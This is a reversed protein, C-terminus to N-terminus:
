LDIFSIIVSSFKNSKGKVPIFNVLLETKEKQRGIFSYKKNLVKKGSFANNIDTHFKEVVNSPIFQLIIKKRIISRGSIKKLINKVENNFSNIEFNSNILLYGQSTINLIAQLNKESEVLLQEKRELDENIIKLEMYATHLEENTSQLEENSTELEENSSQLEENTAQLEENLSQLEENSTELEELYTQLHERTANLELELEKIRPNISSGSEEYSYIKEEEPNLSEFVILYFENNADTYILPKVIIRVYHHKGFLSFKKIKGKITTRDKVSKTLAAHLDLALEKNILKLINANMSGENLGLYLRVDGFIEQVDMNDNVVVYPYEFTNYLTEKVIESLSNRTKERNSIVVSKVERITKVNAFRLASLSQGAKRKFIKSKPDISSFLDAFQGVTESKGLFLIGDPNLAYHFIPIVHKQLQLSFYILLNRCSIMDLKLFPPNVAVDHKSFLVMLRISKSIEFNDDDIKRFYKKVIGAPVDELASSPYIGKRAITLAKEDIDTAFIQINFSTIKEKLIESLLIAFSYPEEGTACGPVWIRINDKTNKQDTIKTLIKNIEKFPDGDRFFRTVGILIMQFLNDLEAPKEQILKLYDDISSIKLINLRKELRRFITSQKYQSFDTQTRKSLLNFLKTMSDSSDLDTEKPVFVLHPNRLFEIIEEGMKDPSLVLDIQETQIAALPMGDYKASHPEQAVTLGGNKKIAKVGNAGDSGTGSLIIGICNNQKEQALSTFFVDISPKPGVSLPPKVLFLKDKKITLESDPPTIYVTNIKISMGNTIEEVNLKTSKSLLQVLMSKYSPSLHQTIVIAANILKPPLGTLLEQIAELGGASAGVGIIIIEEKKKKAM